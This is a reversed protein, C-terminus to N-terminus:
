GHAGGDGGVTLGNIGRASEYARVSAIFEDLGNDLPCNAYITALQANTLPENQQWQHLVSLADDIHVYNGSMDDRQLGFGDTALKWRRGFVPPHEDAGSFPVPLPLPLPVLAPAAPPHAAAGPSAIPVLSNQPHVDLWLMGTTGDSTECVFRRQLREPVYRKDLSHWRTEETPLASTITPSARGGAAQLRSLEDSRPSLWRIFSEHQEMTKIERESRALCPIQDHPRSSSACLAVRWVPEPQQEAM